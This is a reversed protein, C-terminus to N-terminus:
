EINGKKRFVCDMQTVMLDGKINPDDYTTNSVDYINILKFGLIDLANFIELYAQDNQNLERQFSIEIIIMDVYDKFFSKGGSIVARELGEVDIKVIDIRRCRLKPIYSDLTIVKIKETKLEKVSPNNNSYTKSQPLLSNAPSFTTINIESEGIFNSIALKSLTIDRKRNSEKDSYHYDNINKELIKFTESVPEFCIINAKPFAHFASLAVHGENAGIDMIWEPDINKPLYKFPSDRATKDLAHLVSKATSVAIPPVFEKAFEKLSVM